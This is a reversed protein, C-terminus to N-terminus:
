GRAEPGALATLAPRTQALTAELAMWAPEWGDLDGQRGMVELRLAAEALPGAGLNGAMGKLTHAARQVGKPDGRNLATRLEELYAPCCDFFVGVLSQLLERDGGVRALAEGEDIVGSGSDGVTESATL